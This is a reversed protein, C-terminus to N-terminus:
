KVTTGCQIQPPTVAAIDTKTIAVAQPRAAAPVEPFDHTVVVEGWRSSIEPLHQRRVTERVIRALTASLGARGTLARTLRLSPGGLPRPAHRATQRVERLKPELRGPGSSGDGDSENY